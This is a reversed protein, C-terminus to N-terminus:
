VEGCRGSIETEFTATACLNLQVYFELRLPAHNSVLIDKLRDKLRHPLVLISRKVSVAAMNFKSSKLLMIPHRPPM